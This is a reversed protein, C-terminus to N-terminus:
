ANKYNNLYHLFEDFCNNAIEKAKRTIAPNCSLNKIKSEFVAYTEEIQENNNLSETIDIMKDSCNLTNLLGAIKHEYSLAIFPRNQNIAFVISHYRAGCVFRAKSIISQQIDSDYKDDIIVLRSDNYKKAIDNFLNIDNGLKDNRGFTQPLM